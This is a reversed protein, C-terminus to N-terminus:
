ADYRDLSRREDRDLLPGIPCHGTAGRIALASGVLIAALSLLRNPRPQAGIAAIVLGGVVSLTRETASLNKEGSFLDRATDPVINPM